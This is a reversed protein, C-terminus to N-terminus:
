GIARPTPPNECAASSTFWTSMDSSIVLAGDMKALEYLRMATFHCGLKLGGSVLSKDLSNPDAVLVLGGNGARIINDTAKRLETGPAVIRVAESLEVLLTRRSKVRGDARQEEPAKTDRAARM